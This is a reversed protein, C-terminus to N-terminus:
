MTNNIVPQTKYIQLSSCFFDDVEFDGFSLTASLFYTM